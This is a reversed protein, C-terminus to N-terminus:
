DAPRYRFPHTLRAGPIAVPEGDRFRPRYRGTTELQRLTAQDMTGEPSPEEVLIDSARGDAGVTFSLVLRGDRAGAAAATIPSPPPVFYLTAPRGLLAQQASEDEALLTWARRYYALAEEPGPDFIMHWDGVAILMRAQEVAPLSPHAALLSEGQRLVERAPRAGPSASPSLRALQRASRRDMPHRLAAPVESQWSRAIQRLTELQREPQDAHHERQLGLIRERTRRERVTLGRGAYWDALEDLYPLLEASDEGLRREAIELAEERLERGRTRDGLGDNAAAMVHMAAIQETSFLGFNRRAIHRAQDGFILAEAHRGAANFSGGVALMPPMTEAALRGHRAEVADLLELYTEAAGDPDGLARQARAKLSLAAEREDAPASSASRLAELWGEATALADLPRGDALAADALIWLDLRTDAVPTVTVALEELGQEGASGEELPQGAAVGALILLGPALLRSSPHTM